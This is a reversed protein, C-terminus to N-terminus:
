CFLFPNVDRLIAIASRTKNRAKKKEENTWKSKKNRTLKCLPINKSRKNKWSRLTRSNIGLERATKVVQGDYQDLLALAIEIEKM